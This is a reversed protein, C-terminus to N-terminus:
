ESVNLNHDMNGDYLPIERIEQSPNIFVVTTKDGRGSILQRRMFRTNRKTNVMVILKPCRDIEVVPLDDDSLYVRKDEGEPCHLYHIVDQVLDNDCIITYSHKNVLNLDKLDSRLIDVPESRFVFESTM